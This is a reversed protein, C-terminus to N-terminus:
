WRGAVGRRVEDIQGLAEDDVSLRHVGRRHAAGGAVHALRNLLEACLARELGRRREELGRGGERELQKAPRAHLDRDDLGAQAAPEIRGVDDLGNSRRDRGDIEIVLLRPEVSPSIARSFAPMM